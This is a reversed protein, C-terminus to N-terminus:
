GPSPERSGGLLTMTGEGYDGIALRYDVRELPELLVAALDGAVEGPVPHLDRLTVHPTTPSNLLKASVNVVERFFDLLDGSLETGGAAEDAESTPSMGIAAGARAALDLDCVCAAAVAGDDFRYGAALAKRAEDLEQREAPRVTVKCGLLDTLLDRLSARAPLPCRQM